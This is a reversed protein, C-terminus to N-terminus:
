FYSVTEIYKFNGIYRTRICLREYASDNTCYERHIQYRKLSSFNTNGYNRDKQSAQKIDSALLKAEATNVEPTKQVQHDGTPQFVESNDGSLSNLSSVVSEQGSIPPFMRMTDEDRQKMPFDSPARTDAAADGLPVASHEDLSMEAVGFSDGSGGLVSDTTDAPLLVVEPSVEETGAFPFWLWADKRPAIAKKSTGVRRTTTSSPLSSDISSSEDIKSPIKEKRDGLLPSGFDIKDSAVPIM